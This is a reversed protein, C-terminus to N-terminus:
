TKTGQKKNVVNIESLNKGYDLFEREYFDIDTADNSNIRVVKEINPETFKGDTYVLVNEVGPTEGVPIIYNGFYDKNFKTGSKLEGLKRMFSSHEEYNLVKNVRVWGFKDYTRKTYNKLASFDIEDVDIEDSDIDFQHRTDEESNQMYQSNVSDRYQSISNSFDLSQIGNPFQVRPVNLLTQSRKKM